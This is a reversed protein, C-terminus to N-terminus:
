RGTERHYYVQCIILSLRFINYHSAYLDKKRILPQGKLDPSTPSLAAQERLRQITEEDPPHQADSYFPHAKAVVLVDAQLDTRQPPTAEPM